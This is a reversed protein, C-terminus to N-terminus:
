NLPTVVFLKLFTIFDFSMGNLPNLTNLKYIQSFIVFLVSYNYYLLQRQSYLVNPIIFVYNNM